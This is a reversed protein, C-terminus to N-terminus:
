STRMTTPEMSEAIALAADMDLNSELRFGTGDQQWLLVNATPRTETGGTEFITLESAGEVWFAQNGDVTTETVSGTSIGITKLFMYSEDPADFQMLVAGLGTEAAEPLDDGAEWAMIGLMDGNELVRLYVADPTGLAAPQRPTFPLWREFDQMTTPTGLTPLPRPTTEPDGWEIQLGEIGLFDAVTSRASSSAALATGILLLALAAAAFWRHRRHVPSISIPTAGAVQIAGALDPTESWALRAGLESLQADLDDLFIFTPDSM